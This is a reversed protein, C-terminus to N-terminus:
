PSQSDSEKEVPELWLLIGASPKSTDISIVGMEPLEWIQYRVLEIRQEPLFISQGDKPGLADMNWSHNLAYHAAIAEQPVENSESKTSNARTKSILERTTGDPQKVIKITLLTEGPALYSDRINTPFNNPFGRPLIDGFAYRLRYVNGKPVFIRWRWSLEEFTEIAIIHTKTEDKVRLLGLQDQYHEIEAQQADIEAEREAIVQQTRQLHYSTILNSIVLSTLIALIFLTWLSFRLGFRPRDAIPPTTDSSLM